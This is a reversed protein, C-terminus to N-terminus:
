ELFDFTTDNGRKILWSHENGTGDQTSTFNNLISKSGKSTDARILDWRSQGSYPNEETETVAYYLNIKKAYSGWLEDCTFLSDFKFDYNGKAHM